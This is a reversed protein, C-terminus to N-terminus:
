HPIQTRWFRFLLNRLLGLEGSPTLYPLLRRLRRALAAKAQREDPSIVPTKVAIGMSGTIHADSFDDSMVVSELFVPLPGDCARLVDHMVIVGGPILFPNWLDFDLRVSPHKHDGEIWLLRVPGKWERAAEESRRVRVDVHSSVGMRELNQRFAQESSTEGPLRETVRPPYLHPDIAVVRERGAAMAGRALLITSRGTFSGIEVVAGEGPGAYALGFLVRAERDPLRRKSLSQMALALEQYKDEPYAPNKM